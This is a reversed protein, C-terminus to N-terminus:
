DENRATRPKGEGARGRVAFVERTGNTGDAASQKGDGIRM